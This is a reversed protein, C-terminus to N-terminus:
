LDGVFRGPALTRRPDFENRVRRMLDLAPVEGWTDLTTKTAAPADLVVTSGGLRVSTTRLATVAASADLGGDGAAHLVGAGASGTVTLGAGTAEAVLEPIGSLRATTRLLLPSGAGDSTPIRGWWSPPEEAVQAGAGLLPAMAEARAASGAPTGSVLAAVQPDGGPVAHVEVAHPVLQSAVLTGLVQPLRDPPVTAGVWWSSAPVPHLRVTVETIVALTGMSGTLLKSLDYGAVNKVVKGGAKAVTGDARVFRVGIVLDRLAGTWMRRPGALGTAVAGGLTSIGVLDDVVLQHGGEALRDRLVALPMGAGATAILDGRSHEVLADMGTTDLVVDVREPPRGWSLKSANGRVVVTLGAADCARMLASTEGADAPSAVVTAPVGDVADGPQAERLTCTGALSTLVDDGM